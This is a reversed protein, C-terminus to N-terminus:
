PTDIGVRQAQGDIHVTLRNFRIALLGLLPKEKTAASNPPTLTAGSPLALRVPTGALDPARTGPINPHLWLAADRNEIREPGVALYKRNPRLQAFFPPTLWDEAQREQMLFANNFGTDFLVPFLPYNPPLVALLRPALSVWVVLQDHYVRFPRGTTPCVVLTGDPRRLDEGVDPPWPQDLIVRPM